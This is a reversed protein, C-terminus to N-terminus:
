GGAAGLGGTARRQVVQRSLSYLQTPISSSSGPEEGCGTYILEIEPRHAEIKRKLAIARSEPEEVGKSPQTDDILVVQYPKESHQM